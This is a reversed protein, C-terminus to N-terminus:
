NKEGKTDGSYKIISKKSENGSTDIASVGYYAGEVIKISIETKKYLEKNLRKWKKGNRSYWINYGAVDDDKPALWKLSARRGLTSFSLNVPPSPPYIDTPTIELVASKKSENGSKDVETIFYRYTKGKIIDKDIYTTKSKEIEAIIVAGKKKDSVRYIRHINM